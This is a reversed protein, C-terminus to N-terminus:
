PDRSTPARWEFIEPLPRLAGEATLLEDPMIETVPWVDDCPVRALEAHEYLQAIDRAEYVCFARGAATDWFTRVWQMEKFNYACSVARLIAARLEDEPVEPVDRRVIFLPM